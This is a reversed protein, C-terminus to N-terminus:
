KEFRSWTFIAAEGEARLPSLFWCNIFVIKSIAKSYSSKPSKDIFPIELRGSEGERLPVPFRRFLARGRIRVEGM